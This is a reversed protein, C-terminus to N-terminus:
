SQIINFQYSKELHLKDCLDWLNNVSPTLASPIWKLTCHPFIKIRHIGSKEEAVFLGGNSQTDLNTNTNRRLSCTLLHEMQAM